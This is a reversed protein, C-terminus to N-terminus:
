KMGGYQMVGSSISKMTSTATSPISRATAQADARRLSSALFALVRREYEAKAYAHLDVHAAGAVGWFQKPENAAGFLAQSQELTAHQDQEAAILLLPVHLRSVRELPRLQSEGIGLSWSMAAAIPPAALTGLPGLHLRLRNDLAERITSYVQELVLADAALPPDAMVAAAGGMSVGIVGIRENPAAERLYGFAAQADRSELYGFTIRRGASEGHAQFDILLVAYGAASLFRARGLMALRNAHVGHLLLVAGSQPKGRVFWGRLEAGSASPISVARAPLDPPAAGIHHPDPASLVAVAGYGAALLSSALAVVGAILRRSM